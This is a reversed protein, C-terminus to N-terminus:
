KHFKTSIPGYDTTMEDPNEDPTEDYDTQVPGYEMAPDDSTVETDNDNEDYDTPTVGYEPQSIDDSVENDQDATDDDTQVPGYEMAPDDTIAPDDVDNVVVDSDTSDYDTLPVGYESDQIQNEDTTVGYEPASEGCGTAGTLITFVTVMIAYIKKMQTGGPYFKNIEVTYEIM